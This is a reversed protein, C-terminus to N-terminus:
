TRFPNNSSRVQINKRSNRNLAHEIYPKYSEAGQGLYIRHIYERIPEDYEIYFFKNDTDSCIRKDGKHTIYIMRCEEEEEFAAHKILYRLPLLIKELIKLFEHDYHDGVQTNSNHKKLAEYISSLADKVENEINTMQEVYKDYKDEEGAKYFSVKSRQAVHFYGTRPQVYICRYLPLDETKNDIEVDTDYQLTINNLNIHGYAFFEPKFIVSVGSNEENNTKGYLRFQNLSDHNFSFCCAFALYNQQENEFIHGLKLWQTLLNGEEPDNMFHVTSLRLLTADNEYGLLKLVTSYSTYHAVKACFQHKTSDVNLLDIIKYVYFFLDLLVEKKDSNALKYISSLLDYKFGRYFEPIEDLYQPGSEYNKKYKWSLDILAKRSAAFADSSMNETINKWFSIVQDLDINQQQQTDEYEDFLLAGLNFQAKAYLDRDNNISIANWYERAKDHDALEYYATGLAFQFKAYEKISSDKIKGFFCLAGELNGQDLKLNGLQYQAKYYLDPIDETVSLWHEEAEDERHLKNKLIGLNLQAQFYYRENSDKTINKWYQETMDLRGIKDMLFGLQVQAQLYGDGMRKTINKWAIEANDYDKLKVYLLGLLLQASAYININIEKSINGLYIKADEFEGQEKRLVGLRFQSKEYIEGDWDKQISLFARESDDHKEIKKYLMGLRFLAEAYFSQGMEFSISKLLKEVKEYDKSEFAETAEELIQMPDSKM